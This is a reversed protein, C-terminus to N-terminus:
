VEGIVESYTALLWAQLTISMYQYPSIKAAWKCITHNNTMSMDMAVAASAANEMMHKVETVAEALEAGDHTNGKVNTITWRICDAGVPYFLDCGDPVVTPKHALTRLTVPFDRTSRM